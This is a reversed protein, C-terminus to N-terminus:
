GLNNKLQEAIDDYEHKQLKNLVEWTRNINGLIYDQNEPHEKARWESIIATMAIRNVVLSPLLDMEQEQLPNASHYGKLIDITGLFLDACSVTQYAAAVAPENILPAYVMDGFDIMGAVQSSDSHKVVVNDPNMDNHIVQARLASFKPAIHEQFHDLTKQANLLNNKDKIHSLHQHLSPTQQLDWLLAHGAAPHFFGALGRDLRGLFRGMSVMLNQDRRDKPLDDLLKGKLYTVVRVFHKNGNLELRHIQKRDLSFCAKPLPLSPDQKAMHNMAQNQFDLVEVSEAANAIKLVFKEGKNNKLLFNQDRESVLSSVDLAEKFWLKAFESAEGTTFSPAPNELVTFSTITNDM